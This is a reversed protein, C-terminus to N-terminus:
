SELYWPLSPMGHSPRLSNRNSAVPTLFLRMLILRSPLVELSGMGKRGGYLHLPLAWAPILVGQGPAEKSAAQKAAQDAFQSGKTIDSSGWQHGKCHVTAVEPPKVPPALPLSGVQWHLLCFFHSNTNELRTNGEATNSNGDTFWVQDLMLWINIWSTWTPM